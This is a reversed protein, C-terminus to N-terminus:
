SSNKVKYGLVRMGPRVKKNFLKRIYDIEKKGVTRLIFPIVLFITFSIVRLSIEGVKFASRLFSCAIVIIQPRGKNNKAKILGGTGPGLLEDLAKTINDLSNPKFFFDMAIRSSKSRGKQLKGILDDVSTVMAAVQKEILYDMYEVGPLDLLFTRLGYKLGEFIATSHVGIQIKSEAFLRYLPFEDNDVVRVKPKVLWPYESRWRSYEGPHLKYAISYPFNERESLECAFRSMERGITGQSIFLIQNQKKVTPYKKIESELYPYGVSFIREKEIPYEAVQKWFEGFVFLYDPFTRKIRSAGPFSYGLHYKNIVGHQLEVVPIELFKCAEVFTEKGYSCILVVIRPSVSKLLRQYIPYTSKRLRLDWKVLKELNIQINFRAEIQRQFDDLFVIEKNTLLLNTKNSKLLMEAM